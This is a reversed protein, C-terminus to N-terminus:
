TINLLILIFAILVNKIKKGNASSPNNEFDNKYRKLANFGFFSMQNNNKKFYFRNGAEDETLQFLEVPNLERNIKAEVSVFDHNSKYVREIIEDERVEVTM